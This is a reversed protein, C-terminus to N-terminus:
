QFNNVATAIYTPTTDDLCTITVIDFGGDTLALSGGPTMIDGGLTLTYSGGTGNFAL